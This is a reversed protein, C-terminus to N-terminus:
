QNAKLMNVIRKFVPKTEAETEALMLPTKGDKNLINRDAGNKLSLEVSKEKGFQATTHLPATQDKTVANVNAGHKILLDIIKEIDEYIANHLPTEGETNVANVNAGANIILEVSKANNIGAAYHLVTDQRVGHVRNIRNGTIGAKILVNVIKDYGQTVASFIPLTVFDTAQPDYNAGKEILREVIKEHGYYSPRLTYYDFIEILNSNFKMIQEVVKHIPSLMASDTTMHAGNEFLFNVIDLNGSAAAYHLAHNM